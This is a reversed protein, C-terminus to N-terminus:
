NWMGHLRDPLAMLVSALGAMLACAIALGSLIYSWVCDIQPCALFNHWLPRCNLLTLSAASRWPAQWWGALAMDYM